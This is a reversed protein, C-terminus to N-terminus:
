DWEIGHSSHSRHPQDPEDLWPKANLFTAPHKTFKPDEGRRALRYATACSLIEELTVEELAKKFAKKAQPKGVKRPYIEWFEDFQKEAIPSPEKRNKSPEKRNGLPHLEPRSAESNRDPPDVTGTQPASLEPSVEQGSPFETGGRVHYNKTKHQAAQKTVVVWGDAEFEKLCARVYKDTCRAKKALFAQSPWALGSEHASDALALLINLKAGSYPANDWVETTVKVSM